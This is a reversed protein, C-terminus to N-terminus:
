CNCNLCTESTLTPEMRSTSICPLSTDDDDPCLDEDIRTRVDFSEDERCSDLGTSASAVKSVLKDSASRMSRRVGGPLRTMTDKVVPISKSRTKSVIGNEISTAN